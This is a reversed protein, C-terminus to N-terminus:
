VPGAGLNLTRALLDDAHVNPRGGIGGFGVDFQVNRWCALPFQARFASINFHAAPLCRHLQGGTMAVNSYIVQGAVGANGHMASHLSPFHVPPIAFSVNRNLAVGVIRVEGIDVTQYGHVAIIHSFGNHLVHLLPEAEVGGAGIELRSFNLTLQAKISVAQTGAIHAAAELHGGAGLVDVQFVYSPVDLDVVPIRTHLQAGTRRRDPIDHDVILVFSDLNIGGAFIGELYIGSGAAALNVGVELLDFDLVGRFVIGSGAASDARAALLDLKGGFM